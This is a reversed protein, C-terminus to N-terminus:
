QFPHFFATDRQREVPFITEVDLSPRLAGIMRIALHDVAAGLQGQEPAPVDVTEVRHHEVVVAQVTDQLHGPHATQRDLGGRPDRRPRADRGHLHDLRQFVSDQDRILLLLGLPEFRGQGQHLGVLAAQDVLRDDAQVGVNALDVEGRHVGADHDM